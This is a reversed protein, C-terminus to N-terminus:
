ERIWRCLRRMAALISLRLYAQIATWGELSDLKGVVLVPSNSRPSKSDRLRLLMALPGREGDVFTFPTLNQEFGLRQRLQTLAASDKDSTNPDALLDEAQQVREELRAQHALHLQLAGGTEDPIQGLMEVGYLDNANTHIIMQLHNGVEPTDM